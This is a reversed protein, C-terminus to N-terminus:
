ATRKWMYVALYPPMNNHASGGGTYLTNSGWATSAVKGCYAAMHNVAMTNTSSADYVGYSHNHSPIESVSLTHTAAGGTAGNSYTDGSALLFRDKLREWTGGFLNAPSTSNVSMYISGVPYIYNLLTKGGVTLTGTISTNGGVILASNLSANGTVSLSGSMTTGGTVGLTGGVTANGTVGVTKKFEAPWAVELKETTGEAVKGFAVGKGDARFDMTVAVTPVLANRTTSTYTDTITAVATLTVDTPVSTFTATGSIKENTSTLTKTVGNLEIKFTKGNVGSLSSVGGVLTALVSTGDSQREVTFTTIYPIAYPQVALTAGTYSKTKGRSDTVITVATQGGESLASTTFSTGTYIKDDIKTSAASIYGGYSSGATIDVKVSSKGAVYVGSRTNVGTFIASVTPEYAPVYVNMTDSTEGIYTGGSNYTYCIVKCTDYLKTPIQAGLSTPPSFKVTITGQKTWDTTIQTNDIKLGDIQATLSGFEYRIKHKYTSVAPTLTFSIENGMFASQPLDITTARAITPLTWTGSGTSNYSGYFYFALGASASFAGAGTTTNHQITTTGSFVVTGTAVNLLSTSESKTTGNVTVYRERVITYYNGTGGAGKLTWSITSTAKEIDQSQLTWSFTCYDAYLPDSDAYGGTNFSGSRVEAM